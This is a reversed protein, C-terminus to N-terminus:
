RREHERAAQEYRANMRAATYRRLVASIALVLGIAVGALVNVLLTGAVLGIAFAVLAPVIMARNFSSPSNPEM